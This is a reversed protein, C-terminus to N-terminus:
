EVPAREDFREMMESFFWFAREMAASDHACTRITFQQAASLLERRPIGHAHATDALRVAERQRLGDSVLLGEVVLDSASAEILSRADM